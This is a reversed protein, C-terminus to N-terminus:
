RARTARVAVIPTGPALDVSPQAHRGAEHVDVELVVGRDAPGRRELTGPRSSSRTRTPTSAWAPPM